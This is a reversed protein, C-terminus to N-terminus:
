ERRLQWRQRAEVISDNLASTLLQDISSPNNDNHIERGDGGCDYSVFGEHQPFRRVRDIALLLSLGDGSEDVTYHNTKAPSPSSAGQWIFRTELLAFGAARSAAADTETPPATTELAAGGATNRLTSVTEARQEQSQPRSEQGDGSGLGWELSAGSGAGTQGFHGRWVDYDDQDITTDGDGDAGSFASVGTAGLTKRWLVFDAADVVNNHNYDGPLAPGVPQVEFAGIDIRAGSVGDGDKVRSFPTGRQDFLPVTGSGPVAAPDGADIAPSGTLLAHTKTPGDNDALAGLLPNIPSAGTGIQNGGNNTITAGTNVGILSYRASVSGFV